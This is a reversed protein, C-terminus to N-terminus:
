IASTIENDGRIGLRHYTIGGIKAPSIMYIECVFVDIVKCGM